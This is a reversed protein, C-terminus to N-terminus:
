GESGAGELLGKRDLRTRAREDHVEGLNSGRDERKPRPASPRILDLERDLRLALLGDHRGCDGNKAVPLILREDQLRRELTAPGTAPDQKRAAPLIM